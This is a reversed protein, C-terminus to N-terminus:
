GKIRILYMLVPTPIIEKIVRKLIIKFSKKPKYSNWVTMSLYRYYENKYPHVNDYHWPKSPGTFHIISPRRAAEKLVEESFSTSSNRELMNNQMNWKPSLSLWQNYLIANLGDQDHYHIKERNEFLYNLVAKTVGEKRWRTLNIMMVGSNFYDSTSPINLDKLRFLGGIDSVAAITYDFMPIDWLLSIDDKIILDCDIYLLKEVGTGEFLDPISIRYYAANTINHNVVMDRYIDTNIQLFNIKASFKDMTIQLLQKNLSSIGGDIVNLSINRDLSKHVLLSTFCVGIHQAYRDDAVAVIHIQEKEKM